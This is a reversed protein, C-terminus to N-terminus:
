LLKFNPLESASIVSGRLFYTNNKYVFAIVKGYRQDNFVLAQQGNVTTQQINSVNVNAQMEQLLSDFSQQTNPIVEIQGVQGSSTYFALVNGAATELRPQWTNPVVIQFSLEPIKYTSTTSTAQVQTGSTTTKPATTKPPTVTTTEGLVKPATTTPKPEPKPAPKPEPTVAVTNGDDSGSRPANDETIPPVGQDNPNPNLIGYQVPAKNNNKHRNYLFITGAAIVLLVLFIYVIKKM